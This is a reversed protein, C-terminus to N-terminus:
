PVSPTCSLLLRTPSGRRMTTQPCKSITALAICNGAQFPLLQLSLGSVPSKSIVELLTRWLESLVPLQGGFCHKNPSLRRLARAVKVSELCHHSDHPRDQPFGRDSWVVAMIGLFYGPAVSRPPSPRTLCRSRTCVSTAVKKSRCASMDFYKDFHSVIILM